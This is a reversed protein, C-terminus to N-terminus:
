GLLILRHTREGKSYTRELRKLASMINGNIGSRVSDVSELLSTLDENGVYKAKADTEAVEIEDNLAEELNHLSRELKKIDEIVVKVENPMGGQKNLSAVKSGTKWVKIRKELLEFFFKKIEKTDTSDKDHAKEVRKFLLNIQSSMKDLIDNSMEEVTKDSYKEDHGFGLSGVSGNKVMAEIKKLEEAIKNLKM